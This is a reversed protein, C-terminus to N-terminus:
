FLILTKIVRNWPNISRLAHLSHETSLNTIKKKQFFIITTRTKNEDNLPKVRFIGFINEVYM